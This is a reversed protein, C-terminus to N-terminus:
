QNSKKLSYVILLYILFLVGISIVFAPLSSSYISFLILVGLGVAFFIASVTRILITTRNSEYEISFTNSICFLSYMFSSIVVAIHMDSGKTIENWFAYFGYSILSSLAFGIIFRVFNIKM